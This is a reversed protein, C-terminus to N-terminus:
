CSGMSFRIWRCPHCCFSRETAQIRQVNRFQGQVNSSDGGSKADGWTVVSGDALIAAFARETSQVHQVNRLQDRVARSDGGSGVDGWTVVGGNALIAAFARETAQIHEVNRLRNQVASSNGGYEAHGWTMVSGDGLIAASASSEIEPVITRTALVEVSKVQLTLVDDTQLGCERITRPGQLVSGCSQVLRCRGVKLARQARQKFEEVDVDLVAEVSVTQGSLLSVHLTISM